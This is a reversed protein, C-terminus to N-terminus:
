KTPVVGGDLQLGFEGDMMTMVNASISYAATGDIAMLVAQELEATEDICAKKTIGIPGFAITGRALDATYPGGGTNCGTNVQVRGDPGFFLTATGGGPPTSVTDGAFISVVTWTTGVLPLDPEAIRRDLMTIVTGGQELLLEDGKLRLAPRAGLLKALWDDQAHRAPDCGMETTALDDVHLLGDRLAYGGGMTNCGANASLRGGAFQLRIRTQAVLPYPAGNVTVGTSIYARGDLQPPSATPGAGAGACGAILVALLLVATPFARGSTM